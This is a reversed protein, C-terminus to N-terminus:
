NRYAVLGTRLLTMAKNLHYEVAKESILLASAVEKNSLGEVRSLRYVKRCQCSLTDVLINLQQSLDDYAIQKETCHDADCYDAKIEELHRSATVKNRIYECVKLKASRMLYFEISQEILLHKRREWLSKFIDQVM